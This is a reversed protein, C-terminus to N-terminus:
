EEDDKKVVCVTLRVKVVSELKKKVGMLDSVPEGDIALLRLKCGMNHTPEVVNTYFPNISSSSTSSTQHAIPVSITGAGDVTLGWTSQLSARKLDIQKTTVVKKPDLPPFNSSNYYSEEEQELDGYSKEKENWNNSNNNNENLRHKFELVDRWTVDLLTYKKNVIGRNRLRTKMIVIAKKISQAEKSNMVDFKSMEKSNPFMEYYCSSISNLLSGNALNGMTILFCVRALLKPKSKLPADNNNNNNKSSSSVVGFLKFNLKDEQKRRNQQRQQHHQVDDNKTFALSNNNNSNNKNQQQQFDQQKTPRLCCSCIMYRTFMIL